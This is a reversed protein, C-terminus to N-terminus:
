FDKWKLKYMIRQGQNDYLLPDTRSVIGEAPGGQLSLQTAPRSRVFEVVDELGLFVGLYPVVPVGVKEGIERVAEVGLWWRDAVLM